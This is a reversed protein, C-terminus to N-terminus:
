YLILFQFELFHNEKGTEYTLKLKGEEEKEEEQVQGKKPVSKPDPKKNKENLKQQALLEEEEEKKVNKFQILNGEIEPKGKVFNSVLQYTGGQVYFKGLGHKLGHEFTGEYVTKDLATLQGKGHMVGKLVSGQYLSGTSFQIM